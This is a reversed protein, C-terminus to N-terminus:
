TPKVTRPDNTASLSVSLCRVDTVITQMEQMRHLAKNADTFYHLVHVLLTTSTQNDPMAFLRGAQVLSYVAASRPRMVLQCNILTYSDRQPHDSSQTPARSMAELLGVSAQIHETM